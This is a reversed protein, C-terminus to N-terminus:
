RSCRRLFRRWDAVVVWISVVADKCELCHEAASSTSPAICWVTAAPLLEREPFLLLTPHLRLVISHRLTKRAIRKVANMGIAEAVPSLAAALILAAPAPSIVSAAVAIPNCGVCTPTAAAATAAAATVARM